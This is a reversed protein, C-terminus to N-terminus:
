CRARPGVESIQRSKEMPAGVGRGDDARQAAFPPPRSCSASCHGRRIAAPTFDAKNSPYNQTGVTRLTRAALKRLKGPPGYPREWRADDAKDDAQHPCQNRLYRRPNESNAALTLVTRVSRVM